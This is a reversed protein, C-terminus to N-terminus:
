TLPFRAAQSGSHPIIPVALRQLTRAAPLRDRDSRSGRRQRVAAKGFRGHVTPCSTREIMFSVMVTPSAAPFMPEALLALAALEDGVCGSKPHECTATSYGVATDRFLM